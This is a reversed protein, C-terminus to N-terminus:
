EAVGTGPEDEFNKERGSLLGACCVWFCSVYLWPDTRGAGEQYVGNANMLRITQLEEKVYPLYEPYRFNSHTSDWFQNLIITGDLRSAAGTQHCFEKDSEDDLIMIPAIVKLDGKEDAGGSFEADEAFVEM